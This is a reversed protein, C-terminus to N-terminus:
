GGIGLLLGDHKTVEGINECLGQSLESFKTM